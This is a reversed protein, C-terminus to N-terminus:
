QSTGYELSTPFLSDSKAAKVRQRKHAVTLAALGDWHLGKLSLRTTGYGGDEM